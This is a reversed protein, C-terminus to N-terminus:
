SWARSFLRVWAIEAYCGTAVEWWQQGDWSPWCAIHFPYYEFVLPTVVTAGPVISVREIGLLLFTPWLLDLFQAAMFLWCLSINPAVRKAAFGVGFHGLFM